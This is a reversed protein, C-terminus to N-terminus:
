GGQVDATAHTAYRDIVDRINSSGPKPPSPSPSPSPRGDNSNAPTPDPLPFRPPIYPPAPVTPPTICEDLNSDPHAECYIHTLQELNLGLFYSLTEADRVVGMSGVLRLRDLSFKFDTMTASLAKAQEDGMVPLQVNTYQSVPVYRSVIAYARDANGLFDSYAAQKQERLFDATAQQATAASTAHVGLLTGAVGIAAAILASVAGVAGVLLAVSRDLKKEPDKSASAV